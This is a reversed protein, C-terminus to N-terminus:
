KTAQKKRKILAYVLSVGALVIFVVSIPKQFFIAPNGDSLVLFNRFSMETASGLILALVLPSLPIEFIVFIYGVVAGYYVACLNNHCNTLVYPLPFNEMGSAHATQIIGVYTIDHSALSDFKIKLRKDKGSMNYKTLIQYSITGKRAGEGSIDRGTKQRLLATANYNEAIIETQNLLFAGTEYLKIM